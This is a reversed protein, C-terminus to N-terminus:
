LRAPVVAVQASWRAKGQNPVFCATFLSTKGDFYGHISTPHYGEKQLEVVKETLKEATMDRFSYWRGDPSDQAWLSAFRVKGGVHYGCSCLERSGRALAEAFHKDDADGDLGLLAEWAVPKADRVAVAQFRPGDAADRV